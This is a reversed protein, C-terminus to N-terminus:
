TPRVDARGISELYNAAANLAPAGADGTFVVGAVGGAGDCVCADRKGDGAEDGEGEAAPQASGHHEDV